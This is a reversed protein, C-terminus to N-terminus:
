SSSSPKLGLVSLFQVVGCFDERQMDLINNLRSPAPIGALPGGMAQTTMRDQNILRAMETPSEPDFVYNNPLPEMRRKREKPLFDRLFLEKERFESVIMVSSILECKLSAM